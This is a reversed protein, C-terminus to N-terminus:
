YYDVSSASWLTSKTGYNEEIDSDGHIRAHDNNQLFSLSQSLMSALNDYSDKDRETTEKTQERAQRYSCLSVTYTSANKITYNSSKGGVGCDHNRQHHNRSNNASQAGSNNTRRKGSASHHHWVSTGDACQCNSKDDETEAEDIEWPTDQCVMGPKGWNKSSALAREAEYNSQPANIRLGTPQRATVGRHGNNGSLLSSAGPSSGLGQPVPGWLGSTTPQLNQTPTSSRWDSPYM